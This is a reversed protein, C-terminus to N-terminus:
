WEWLGTQGKGVLSLPPNSGPVTSGGVTTPGSLLLREEPLGYTPRGPSRNHTHPSM